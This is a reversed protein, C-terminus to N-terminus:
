GRSSRQFGRLWARRELQQAVALQGDDAAQGGRGVGAEQAADAGVRREIGVLPGVILQRGPWQADVLRRAAFPRQV